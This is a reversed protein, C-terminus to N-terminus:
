RGVNEVIKQAQDGLSQVLNTALQVATQRESMLSQVQIMQLESNSNLDSACAQLGSVYAQVESTSLTNDGRPGQQDPPYLSEDVYPLDTTPGTGSYVLNNYIQKLKALEPCGPDSTKLQQILGYLGREMNTCTTSNDNVGDTASSFQQLVQQIASIESNRVQQAGLVGRLQGDISELRSQCYSLLADPTLLISGDASTLTSLDLTGVGADAPAAPTGTDPSHGSGTPLTVAELPLSYASNGSHWSITM